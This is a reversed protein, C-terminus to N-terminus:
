GGEQNLGRGSVNGMGWEDVFSCVGSDGAAGLAVLVDGYWLGM